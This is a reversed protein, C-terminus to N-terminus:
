VVMHALWHRHKWVHKIHVVPIARLSSGDLDVANLKLIHVRVLPAALDANHGLIHTQKVSGDEVVDGEARWGLSALGQRWTLPHPSGLLCCSSSVRGLKNGCLCALHLRAALASRVASRAEVKLDAVPALFQTSPLPLADRNCPRQVGLVGFSRLGLHHQQVLSRRRKVSFTLFVDLVRQAHERITPGSDHHRMAQGRNARRVADANQGLTDDFLLSRKLLQRTVTVAQEVAQVGLM